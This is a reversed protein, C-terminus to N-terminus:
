EATFVVGGRRVDGAGAFRGRQRDYVVTHAGGFFLNREHWLQVREFRDRLAVVTEARHGGEVSLLGDELHVRPSNVAQDVPLRFDLLKLLLQLICTRIRNSGGSGTAILTSGQRAVLPAMMSSIRVGTPWRHFGHPHVDAEGLMNNLMVGTGPAVHGCGEGNSITMSAANGAGDVASIQTTGRSQVAGEALAQLYPALHEDSLLADAIHAKHERGDYAQVRAESTQEMVRALLAVYDPGRWDLRDVDVAELLRLGFAILVGGSSPPPNFLLEAGRYRLELPRRAHVRYAELDRLTLHGAGAESDAVVRRGLPGGYFLEPGERALLAMSEALDPMALVEGAQMPVGERQRSGYIRRAEPTHVYIPATIQFLYAQLPNIEIGQRAHQLAPEVLQTMPLTCRDRHIRFLGQVLGPTAAAGLGVFFQQTATGFHVDVPV